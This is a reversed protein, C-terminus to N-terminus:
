RSKLERRTLTTVIKGDVETLSAVPVTILKGDLILQAQGSETVKYIAGIKGGKASYLPKGAEVKVAAPASVTNSVSVDDAALAAAPLATTALAALALLKNMILEEVLPEVRM